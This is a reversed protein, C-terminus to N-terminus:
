QIESFTYISACILNATGCDLIAIQDSNLIMMWSLLLESIYNTPWMPWHLDM